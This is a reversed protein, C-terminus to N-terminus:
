NGKMWVTKTNKQCYGERRRVDSLPTSFEFWDTKHATETEVDAHGSPRTEGEASEQVRRIMSSLVSGEM